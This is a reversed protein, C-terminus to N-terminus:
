QLSSDGGMKLEGPGFGRDVLKQRLGAIDDTELCFHNLVQKEIKAVEEALFVEIFTENSAKMYFGIVKGKRCFDFYREMGLVGCYFDATADLSLTKICVHALSKISM